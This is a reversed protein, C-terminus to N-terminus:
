RKDQSDFRHVQASSFKAPRESVRQTFNIREFLQIVKIGLTIPLAVINPTSFTSKSGPGGNDNHQWPHESPPDPDLYPPGACAQSQHSVCFLTVVLILGSLTVKLKM